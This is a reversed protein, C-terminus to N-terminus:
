VQEGREDEIIEPKAAIPEKVEENKIPLQEENELLDDLEIDNASWGGREGELIADSQSQNQM